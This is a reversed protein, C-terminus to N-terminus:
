KPISGICFSPIHNRCTTWVHDSRDMERLFDEAATTRIIAVNSNSIDSSM